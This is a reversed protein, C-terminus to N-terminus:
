DTPKQIYVGPIWLEANANTRVHNTPGVDIMPYGRGWSILVCDGDPGSCVVPRRPFAQKVGPPVNTGKMDLYYSDYQPLKMLDEAWRQVSHPDASSKIRWIDGRRCDWVRYGLYASVLVAACLLIAAKKTM